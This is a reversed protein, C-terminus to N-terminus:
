QKRKSKKPIGFKGIMIIVHFAVYSFRNFLGLCHRQKEGKQNFLSKWAVCAEYSISLIHSSDTM